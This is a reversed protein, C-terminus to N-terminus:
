AELARNEEDADAGLRFARIQLFRQGVGEVTVVIQRAALAIGAEVQLFDALLRSLINQKRLTEEWFRSPWKQFSQKSRFRIFCSGGTAAARKLLGGNRCGEDDGQFVAIARARDTIPGSAKAM